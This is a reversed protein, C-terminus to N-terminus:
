LSPKGKPIDSSFGSPLSLPPLSTLKLAFLFLQAASCLHLFPGKKESTRHLLFIPSPLSRRSYSPFGNEKKCVKERYEARASLGKSGGENCSWQWPRFSPISSLLPGLPLPRRKHALGGEKGGEGESLRRRGSCLGM